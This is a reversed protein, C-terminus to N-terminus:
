RGNWLRRLPRESIDSRGSGADHDASHPEGYFGLRASWTGAFRGSRVVSLHLCGVPCLFCSTDYVRNRWLQRPGGIQTVTSNDGEDFNKFIGRGEDGAAVQSAPSGQLRNRYLVRQMEESRSNAVTKDMLDYCKEPDAVAPFDNTGRLAVAKLNKSGMVCGGGTRAFAHWGTHIICAERCLHEGAPGISLVRVFPDNLEEAVAQDTQTTTMGWINKAKKIEVNGDKVYLYSPEEAKGTIVIGDYGAMKLESTWHGGCESHGMLETLPSKFIVTGRSTGVLGSIPGTNFFLVNEASMPDTGPKTRNWLLYLGYTLGGAMKKAVDMDVPFSKVSGDTLNVDLYKGAYGNVM